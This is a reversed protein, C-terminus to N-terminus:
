FIIRAAFEDKEKVLRLTFGHLEAIQRVITLGIGTGQKGGRSNDGKVFPETLKDVPVGMQGKAMNRVEYFSDLMCIRIETGAEAYKIANNILNDLAQSILATDAQVTLNGEMLVRLKREETLVEYKQLLTETVAALDVETRELAQEMGEVKYLELINGIMENMYQVNDLIATVYHKQKEPHVDNQLNEAYGSIAMLPTKLDHAMANTTDRRYQEMKYVANNKQFSRYSFTWALLLMLICMGAYIGTIRKGYEDFINYQSYIVLNVSLEDNLKFTNLIVNRGNNIWSAGQFEEQEMMPKVEEELIKQLELDELQTGAILPSTHRMHWGEESFVIHEYQEADEPTMNYEEAIEIIEDTNNDRKVLQVKGPIATYNQVYIDEVLFDVYWQGQEEGNESWIQNYTEYVEEWIDTPSEYVYTTNETGNQLPICVMESSDAYLEMTEADYLAAGGNSSHMKLAFQWHLLTKWRELQDSDTVMGSIDLPVIGSESDDVPIEIEQKNGDESGAGCIEIYDSKITNELELFVNELAKAEADNYVCIAIETGVLGVVLFIVAFVSLYRLFIKWFVPKTHLLKVRKRM